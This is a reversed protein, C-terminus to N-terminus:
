VLSSQLLSRIKKVQGQGVSRLVSRRCRLLLASLELTLPVVCALPTPVCIHVHISRLNMRVQLKWRMQQREQDAGQKLAAYAQHAALQEERLRRSLQNNAEELEELQFRLTQQSGLAAQEEM